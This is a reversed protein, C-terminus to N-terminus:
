MDVRSCVQRCTMKCLSRACITLGYMYSSTIRSAECISRDHRDTRMLFHLHPVLIFALLHWVCVCTEGRGVSRVIAIAIPAEISGVVGAMSLLEYELLGALREREREREGLRVKRGAEGREDGKVREGM